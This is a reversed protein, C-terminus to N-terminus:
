FNDVPKIKHFKGSGPAYITLSNDKINDKEKEKEQLTLMGKPYGKSLSHKEILRFVELHPKCAKSLSGCQFSIFDRILWKRGDDFVHIREKGNNAKHIFDDLTV